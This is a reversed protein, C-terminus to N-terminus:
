GLKNVGLNPLCDNKRTTERFSADYMCRKRERRGKESKDLVFVNGSVAERARKAM